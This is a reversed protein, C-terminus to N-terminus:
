EQEGIIYNLEQELILTAEDESQIEIGAKFFAVAEEKTLEQKEM